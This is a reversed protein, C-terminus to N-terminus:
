SFTRHRWFCIVALFMKSTIDIYSKEWTWTDPIIFSDNIQHRNYKLPILVLEWLPFAFANEPADWWPFSIHYHRCACFTVSQETVRHWTTSFVFCQQGKSFCGLTEPRTPHLTPPKSNNFIRDRGVQGWLYRKLFRLCSPFPISICWLRTLPLFPQCELSFIWQCHLSILM